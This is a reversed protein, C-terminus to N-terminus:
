HGRFPMDLVVTNLSYNVHPNMSNDLTLLYGGIYKPSNIKADHWGFHLSAKWLRFDFKEPTEKPKIPKGYYRKSHWKNDIGTRGYIKRQYTRAKTPLFGKKMNNKWIELARKYGYVQILHIFSKRFGQYVWQHGYSMRVVPQNQIYGRIIYFSTKVSDQYKIQQLNVNWSGHWIKAWEKSVWEQPLKPVNYDKRFVIHLVGAGESTKVKFYTFKFKCKEYIQPYQISEKSRWTKIFPTLHHKQCYKVYMLRRLKREIKQKLLTFAKNLGKMYAEKQNPDTKDYQTTLTMFSLRDKQTMGLTLGSNLAMFARSQKRTLKKESYIEVREWQNRPFYVLENKGNIEIIHWIKGDIEYIPESDNGTATIKPNTTM